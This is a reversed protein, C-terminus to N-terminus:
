PAMGGKAARATPAAAPVLMKLRYDVLDNLGDLFLKPDCRFVTDFEAVAVPMGGGSHVSDKAVGHKDTIVKNVRHVLNLAMEFFLSLSQDKDSWATRVVAEDGKLEGLGGPTEIRMEYFPKGDGYIHWAGNRGEKEGIHLAFERLTFQLKDVAQQSFGLSLITAKIKNVGEDFDALVQKKVVLERADAYDEASM